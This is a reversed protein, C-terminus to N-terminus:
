VSLVIGERRLDSIELKYVVATVTCTSKRPVQGSIVFVLERKNWSMHAVGHSFWCDAYALVFACILKVTVAFYRRLQDAGKSGRSPYYLEEEVLIMYTYRQKPEQSPLVMDEDWIRQSMELVEEAEREEVDRDRPASVQSLISDQEELATVQTVAAVQSSPPTDSEEALSALIDVLSKDEVSVSFHYM